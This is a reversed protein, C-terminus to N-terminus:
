EENCNCKFVFTVTCFYYNTSLHNKFFWCEIQLFFFKVTCLLQIKPIFGFM